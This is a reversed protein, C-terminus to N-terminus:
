DDTEEPKWGAKDLAHNLVVLDIEDIIVQEDIQSRVLTCVEKRTPLNMDPYAGILYDNIDFYYDGDVTSMAIASKPM